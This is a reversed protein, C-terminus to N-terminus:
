KWEELTCIHMLNIFALESTSGRGIITKNELNLAVIWTLGDTQPVLEYWRDKVVSEFKQLAEIYGPTM